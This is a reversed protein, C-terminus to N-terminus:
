MMLAALGYLEVAGKLSMYLWLCRVETEEQRTSEYSWSVAFMDWCDSMLKYVVCVGLPM